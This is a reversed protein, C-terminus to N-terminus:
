SASEGKNADGEIADAEARLAAVTAADEIGGLNIRVNALAGRVGTAAMMRGVDLDSACNVNSRGDLGQLVRLVEVGLKANALPVRAAHITAAQVAATRAAQQEPTDKPLAYAAMVEGYADADADIAARARASLTHLAAMADHVRSEHEAYKKKGTTLECVMLGLAAASAIAFAAVSGGGPAASKGAVADLFPAAMDALPTRSAVASGGAAVQAIRNELVMAPSFNEIRLYFDAAADLARQPVLGVIESGVVAVGCRAAESKVMEVARHIPTGEFDTLNMSVQAIGRADLMVGMAKVYRLGGSSHRVAKAIRNAVALDHTALNVNYAVLFKRAGVIAAGATPHLDPGGRDPRRAENTKVEERIGEFEGRRVDALNERDPRTAAQEYFYVPLGLENWLRDGVERAISVCEGMSVGRVPIFPIVDVAGLRPHGGTHTTLDILRMATAAGRVAAEGVAERTGVYTVVARNHDADAEHGLVYVDPASAIAAVIADIVEPRRGESFNPVCEVITKM